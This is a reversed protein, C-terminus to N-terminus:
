VVSSRNRPGGPGRRRWAATSAATSPVHQDQDDVPALLAVLGVRGKCLGPVAPEDLMGADLGGRGQDHERGDFPGLEAVAPVRGIVPRGTMSRALRGDAGPDVGQSRDKRRGEAFEDRDPQGVLRGVPDDLVEQRRERHAQIAGFPRGEEPSEMLHASSRLDSAQHSLEAFLAPREPAVQPRTLLGPRSGQSRGNMRRRAPDM